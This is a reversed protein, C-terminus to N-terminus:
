SDRCLVHSGAEIAKREYREALQYSDLEATIDLYHIGTHLFAEM